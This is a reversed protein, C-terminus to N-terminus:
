GRLEEIEIGQIFAESDTMHLYEALFMKAEVMSNFKLINDDSNRRLYQKSNDKYNTKSIIFM